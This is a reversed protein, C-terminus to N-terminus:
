QKEPRVKTKMLIKTQLKDQNLKWSTKIRSETQGWEVKLQRWRSDGQRWEVKSMHPQWNTQNYKGNTKIRSEIQRLEVILM